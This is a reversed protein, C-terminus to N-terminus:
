KLTTPRTLDAVHSEPFLQQIREVERRFAELSESDNPEVPLFGMSKEGLIWLSWPLPPREEFPIFISGVRGHATIWEQSAHRHRIWNLHYAFWALITCGITIAVFFRRLSFRFWRSTTAGRTVWLGYSASLVVLVGAGFICVGQRAQPNASLAGFYTDYEGILLDDPDVGLYAVVSGVFGLIMMALGLCVLLAFVTRVRRLRLDAKGPADSM